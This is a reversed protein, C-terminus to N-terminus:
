CFSAAFSAGAGGVGLFSTSSSSFCCSSCCGEMGGVGKVAEAESLEILTGLLEWSVYGRHSHGGVTNSKCGTSDLVALDDIASGGVIASLVSCKAEAFVAGISTDIVAGSTSPGTVLLLALEVPGALLLDVEGAPRLALM